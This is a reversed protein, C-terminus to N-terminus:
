CLVTTSNELLRFHPHLVCRLLSFDCFVARTRLVVPRANAHFVSIAVPEPKPHAKRFSPILPRRDCLIAECTAMSRDCSLFQRTDDCPHSALALRGSTPASAKLFAEFLLSAGQGVQQLSLLSLCGLLVATRAIGILHRFSSTGCLHM